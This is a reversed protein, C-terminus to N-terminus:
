KHRGSPFYIPILFSIYSQPIELPSIRNHFMVISKQPNNDVWVTPQIFTNPLGSGRDSTELRTEPRLAQTAKTERFEPQMKIQCVELSELSYLPAALGNFYATPQFRKKALLLAEEEM